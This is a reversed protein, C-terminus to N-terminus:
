LSCDPLPEEYRERKAGLEDDALLRVIAQLDEENTKEFICPYIM